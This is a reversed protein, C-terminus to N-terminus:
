ICLLVSVIVSNTFERSIMVRVTSKAGEGPFRFVLPFCRVVKKESAPVGLPDVFM